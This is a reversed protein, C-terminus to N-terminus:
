VRHVELEGVGIEINLKLKGGGAGDAGLDTVTRNVDDGNRQEGFLKVNGAGASGHVTVDVDAPVYVLVHGFGVDVRTQASADTFDVAALDLTAEGFGVEYSPQIDAAAAPAWRHNGLGSGSDWDGAASSVPLVICLVVGVVILARARGFWAGAVLGAGVMGLAVAAYSAGPISVDLLRDAALMVGLLLLTASLVIRGLASRPRPSKPQKPPTGPASPFAPPPPPPPTAPDAGVGGGYPGYPAYAPPVPAPVTGTGPWAPAAPEGPMPGRRALLVIGLVVLGLLLASEGHFAVSIVIVAIVALVVTTVTSTSSLGRGLLAEVPSATDGDTPLFLWAALYIVAGVGGFFVLVALALRFVLPDVGCYRGLGGCVGAIVRRDRSRSLKRETTPAAPPADALADNTTMDQDHRAGGAPWM